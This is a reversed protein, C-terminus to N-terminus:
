LKWTQEHVRSVWVQMPNLKPLSLLFNHISVFSWWHVVRKSTSLHNQSGLCEDLFPVFTTFNPNKCKWCGFYMGRRRIFTMCTYLQKHKVRRLLNNQYSSQKQENTLDTILCITVWSHSQILPVPFMSWCAIIISGLKQICAHDLLASYETLQPGLSYRYKFSFRKHSRPSQKESLSCPNLNALVTVDAVRLFSESPPSFNTCRYM